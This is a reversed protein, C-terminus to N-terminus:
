FQLVLRTQITQATDAGGSNDGFGFAPDEPHDLASFPFLVGYSIGAFFGDNSYGVDADIELGYLASNGPTAVPRHAASVIGAGTVAFKDTLNYRFSPKGYVANSVTGLIERFLLLDVHYDPDFFFQEMKLDSARVGPAGAVHTRGAVTNDFQDGSAFGLEFGVTLDDELLKYHMRLVGGFQRMSVDDTTSVAPAEVSGLVAVAEAELDFKGKAFHVWLDPVYSTMGRRQFNEALPVEGLTVSTQEWSQTRYALFAGYNLVMGGDALRDAIHTPSDMRSLTLVWQDLDDADDLDWDQGTGPLEGTQGVSPGTQAWDMALGANFETGPVAASFSIRDVTDGFDADLNYGGHIPDMGGGNAVMGMGWHWPQRGFKLVGFPADIEAWARKVTISDGISNSGAQPAAQNEFAGLSSSAAAPTSGLVLNDLVDIQLHVTSREDLHVIPELRLRMNSSNVSGKCGSVSARCALSNPVPAGGLSEIDSFGLDYRKRWDSRLRMYGDLSFVRLQKRSEKPPPLTPTTPLVGLKKPAQEAVGESEPKAGERPNIPQQGGGPSVQADATSFSLTLAATAVTIATNLKHHRSM